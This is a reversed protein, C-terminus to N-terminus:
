LNKRRREQGFILGLGRCNFRAMTRYRLISILQQEVHFYLRRPQEQEFRFIGDSESGSVYEYESNASRGRALFPRPLRASRHRQVWPAPM